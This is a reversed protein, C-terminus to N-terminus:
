KLVSLVDMYSQFAAQKTVAFREKFNDAGKLFFNYEDILFDGTIEEVYMSKLGIENAMLARTDTGIIISPKGYSSLQYAAHIRNMFGFKAKSYLKMYDLYNTSYFTKAQPDLAKAEDLEKQNHCSFIVNERTKLYSYFKKFEKEWHSFSIEQDMTFHGGGSMYNVVVYDTGLDKLGHEDAAFISTCPIVPADLGLLNAVKRSLTDRYTTVTSLNFFEKIYDCDRQSKLFESGDSYYAQCTGGALNILKAKKNGQFRRKILPKYWENDVCHAEPHEWCWYIPAGSQVVLDAMLIRDPTWRRLPLKEDWQKSKSYDRFWEFGYRSTIPSHKHIHTFHLHTGKYFNRLIHKIGERIFDDGVNHRVTTIIAINM